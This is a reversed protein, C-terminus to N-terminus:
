GARGRSRWALLFLLTAAVVILTLPVPANAIRVDGSRRSSGDTSGDAPCLDRCSYGCDHSIRLYLPDIVSPQSSVMAEFVRGSAPPVCRPEVRDRDCSWEEPCEPATSHCKHSCVQHTPDVELCWFGNIPSVPLTDMYQWSGVYCYELGPDDSRCTAGPEGSQLFVMDEDMRDSPLRAEYRSVWAGSSMWGSVADSFSTPIDSLTEDTKLCSDRDWSDSCYVVRDGRFVEGRESLSANFTLAVGGSGDGLFGELCDRYSEETVFKADKDDANTRGTPLLCEPTKVVFGPIDNSIPFDGGSPGKRSNVVWLTLDLTQGASLGLRTLQLPYFPPDRPDLDFRVAPFADIEGEPAALRAAFYCSYRDAHEAVFAELEPPRVYGNAELWDPIAKPDGASLVVFDLAGITGSQWVDVKLVGSGEAGSSQDGVGSSGGGITPSCDPDRLDDCNCSQICGQVFLPATVIELERFVQPDAASVTPCHPFPILWGAGAKPRDYRVELTLSWSSDTREVVARQATPLAKGVQGTGGGAETEVWAMGDALVAPSAAMALLVAISVHIRM